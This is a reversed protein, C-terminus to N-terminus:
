AKNQEGSSGPHHDTVYFGSGKFMVPPASYLRQVHRHGAPCRVNSQDADFPMNKEFTRGCTPCSFEYVPM